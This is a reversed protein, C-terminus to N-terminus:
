SCTAPVKNCSVSLPSNAEAGLQSISVVVRLILIKITTTATHYVFVLLSEELRGGTSLYLYLLYYQGVIILVSEKVTRRDKDSRQQAM